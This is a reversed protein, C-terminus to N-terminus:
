DRVLVHGTAWVVSVRAQAGDLKFHVDGGTSRGSPFFRIAGGRQSREASAVSLGMEIRDDMVSRAIVQSGYAREVPEIHFVTDRNRAMAAARTVRLAAAMRTVEAKLQPQAPTRRLLPMAMGAVLGLVILIALMELLAFGAKGSRRNM